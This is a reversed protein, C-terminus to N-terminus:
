ESRFKIRDSEKLFDFQNSVIQVRGLKVRASILYGEIWDFDILCRSFFCLIYISGVRSIRNGDRFTVILSIVLRIKIFLFHLRILIAARVCSSFFAAPSAHIDFKSFSFSSRDFLGSSWTAPNFMM